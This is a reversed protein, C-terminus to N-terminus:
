PVPPEAQREARLHRQNGPETLCERHAVNLLAVDQEQEVYGTIFRRERKLRNEDSKAMSRPVALVRTKALPFPITTLSGEMTAILLFVPSTSATPLSALSISPRVGPLMTAM